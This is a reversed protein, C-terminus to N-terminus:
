QACRGNEHDCSDDCEVELEGVIPLPPPPPLCAYCTPNAWCRRQEEAPKGCIHCLPPDPFLKRQYDWANEGARYAKAMAEPSAFEAVMRPRPDRTIPEMACNFWAIWKEMDKAADTM